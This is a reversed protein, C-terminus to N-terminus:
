FGQDIIPRNTGSREIADLEYNPRILDVKEGFDERGVVRRKAPRV